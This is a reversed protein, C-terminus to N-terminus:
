KKYIFVNGIYNVTELQLINTVEPRVEFFIEVNLCSKLSILRDSPCNNIIKQKGNLLKTYGVIVLNSGTQSSFYTVM